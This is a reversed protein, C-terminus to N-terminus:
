RDRFSVLGIAVVSGRFGPFAHLRIRRGDARHISPGSGSWWDFPRDPNVFEIEGVLVRHHRFLNQVEIAPEGMLITLRARSRIASGISFAGLLAYGAASVIVVISPLDFGFTIIAITGASRM